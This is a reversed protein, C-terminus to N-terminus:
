AAILAIWGLFAAVGGFVAIIFFFLLLSCALQLYGLILGALAFGDGDLSGQSRRIEGRAMHGCVIAVISGLVPLTLWALLGFAFSVIATTSTNRTSLDM